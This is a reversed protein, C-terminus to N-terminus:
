EEDVKGFVYLMVEDEGIFDEYQLLAECRFCLREVMEGKFPNESYYEVRFRELESPSSGNPYESRYAERYTDM